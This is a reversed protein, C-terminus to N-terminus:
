VIKRVVFIPPAAHLLEHGTMRCWAPLDTEAGPDVTHIRLTDGAGLAKMRRRLELAFRACGIEGADWSVEM